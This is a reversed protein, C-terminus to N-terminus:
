LPPTLADAHSSVDKATAPCMIQSDGLGMDRALQEVPTPVAVARNGRGKPKGPQSVVLPVQPGRVWPWGWGPSYHLVACCPM